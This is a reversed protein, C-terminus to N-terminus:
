RRGPSDQVAPGSVGSCSVWRASRQIRWWAAANEYLKTYHISYSTIVGQPCAPGYEFADVVTEWPASPLPPMFRRPATDAGYRIGKFVIVGQDIQGRVPGHTTRAVPYESGPATAARLPM